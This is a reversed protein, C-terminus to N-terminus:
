KIAGTFLAAAVSALIVALVLTMVKDQKSMPAYPTYLEQTTDCPFAEILTRPCIYFEGAQCKPLAHWQRYTASM